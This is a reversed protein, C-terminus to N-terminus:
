SANKKMVITKAVFHTFDLRRLMNKMFHVEGCGM